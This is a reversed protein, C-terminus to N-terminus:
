SRSGASPGSKTTPLKIRVGERIVQPDPFKDKNLEHLERWRAADGLQERAISAWRDNKKVQYYRVPTNGSETPPKAQAVKSEAPSEKRTPPPAETVTPSPNKAAPVNPLTLVMGTKLSDPSQMKDRNAAYIAEVTSRSKSGFQAMAIKSLTDGPAVTYSKGSPAPEIAPNTTPTPIFTTQPLTAVNGPDPTRSTLNRENPDFAPNTPAVPAPNQGRDLLVLDSGSTPPAATPRAPTRSAHQQLNTPVHGGSDSLVPRPPAAAGERGRNTLIVAFCIIFALGALLGVKTERAM